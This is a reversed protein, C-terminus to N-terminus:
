EGEGAVYTCGPIFWFLFVFRSAFPNLIRRCYARADDREKITRKITTPCRETRDNVAFALSYV